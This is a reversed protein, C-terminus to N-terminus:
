KYSMTGQLAHSDIWTTGGACNTSDCQAEATTPQIGVSMAGGSVSIGNLSKVHGDAFLFNSQGLHRAQTPNESGDLNGNLGPSFDHMQGTAPYFNHPVQYQREGSSWVPDSVEGAVSPDVNIYAGGVNYIESVLVTKSAATLASVNVSQSIQGYYAIWTAALNNNYAYSMFVKNTNPDSPCEFIQTSKVYPYLENGWGQGVENTVPYNLMSCYRSNSPGANATITGAPWLEDNDQLYQIFGLGIQKENSQCSARRANERAREFVPFLIAALLAIIAVVVLLEILTFAERGTRRATQPAQANQNPITSM